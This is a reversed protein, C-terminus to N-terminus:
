KPNGLAAHAERLADHGCTCAYDESESLVKDCTDNHEAAVRTEAAKAVNVLALVDEAVRGMDHCGYDECFHDEGLRAYHEDRHSILEKAEAEIRDLPRSV